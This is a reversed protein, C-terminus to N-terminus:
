PKGNGQLQRDLNRLFAEATTGRRRPNFEFGYAAEFAEDLAGQHDQLFRAIDVRVRQVYKPAVENKFVDVVGEPTDAFYASDQNLYGEILQSLHPYKM